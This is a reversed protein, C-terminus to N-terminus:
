ISISPSSFRDFGRTAQKGQWKANYKLMYLSTQIILLTSHLALLGIPIDLIFPTLSRLNHADISHAPSTNEAAQECFWVDFPEQSTGFGEFVKPVSQAELYV